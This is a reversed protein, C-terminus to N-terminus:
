HGSGRGRRGCRGRRGGGLGRGPGRGVALPGAGSVRAVGEGLTGAATLDRVSEIATLADGPFASATETAQAVTVNDGFEVEM